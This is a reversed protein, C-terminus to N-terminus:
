WLFEKDNTCLGIFAKFVAALTKNQLLTMV